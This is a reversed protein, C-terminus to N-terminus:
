EAQRTTRAIQRRATASDPLEILPRANGVIQLYAVDGPVVRVERVMSSGSEVRVLYPGPAVARALYQGPLLEGEAKQNVFVQVGRRGLGAKPERYIYIVAKAPEVIEPQFAEGAPPAACGLPMASCVMLALVSMRVGAKFWHVM